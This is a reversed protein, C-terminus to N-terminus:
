RCQRLASHNISKNNEFHTDLLIPKHDSAPAVLHKIGANPFMEQWEQNCCGQDLRIRVHVGGSRRAVWTYQPRHFGLEIAAANSLFNRFPKSSYDGRSSGGCKDFNSSYSNCNGLLMWPGLFTTTIITVLDWFAERHTVKPPGYVLLLLWVDTLPDFYVLCAIINKNDFIVELSVGHVWYLAM